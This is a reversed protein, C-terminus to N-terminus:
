HPRKFGARELADALSGESKRCREKSIFATYGPVLKEYEVMAENWKQFVEVFGPQACVPCCPIGPGDSRNKSLKLLSWDDTWYGCSVGYWVQRQPDESTTEDGHTNLYKPM